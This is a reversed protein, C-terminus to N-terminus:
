YAGRGQAVAWFTSLLLKLDLWITYNRIYHMDLRVREGYSLDARGSIQWLGTLGPKVTLLNHRWRGFHDLETPTIMRPGVLSMEGKLVNFLQPLEDLSYKRLWRGVRTVRPDDRIKGTQEWEEKMDPHAELYADADVIMTRFKYADFERGYLGVVRRRYIVPRGSDLWVLVASVALMPALLVLGVLAGVYDLTAKMLKDMGTIRTRNLSVLPIFGVERVQVGTTFLEYLGSSLRIRVRDDTGWDRYLDLLTERKLATPIVILEEVGIRQVLGELQEVRGVIPVGELESGPPRDGDVFGVVELGATRSERLQAAVMRGEENAGVILVRRLFWGRERLRYVLRRYGFRTWVVSTVSFFWVMALWGRSIDLEFRRDLFSYLILGVLGATCGNVVNAYEQLGGFLDEASYLRYLAFIVLWMPLAVAVLQNYFPESFAGYYALLHFRLWYAAVMSLAICVGDLVVLPVVAWRVSLRERTGARQRSMPPPPIEATVPRISEQGVGVAM